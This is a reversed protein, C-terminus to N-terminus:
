ASVLRVKFADMDAAFLLEVYPTSSQPFFKTNYLTLYNHLALEKSMHPYFNGLTTVGLTLPRIWEAMQMQVRELLKGAKVEVKEREAADRELSAQAESAKQASRAQVVYGVMGLLGTFVIAAVEISFGGAGSQLQRGTPTQSHEAAYTLSGKDSSLLQPLGDESNVFLEIQRIRDARGAFQLAAKRLRARDGLPVAAARLEGFLEAAETIDLEAVDQV